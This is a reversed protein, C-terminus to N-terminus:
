NIFPSPITPRMKESTSADLRAIVIALEERDSSPLSNKSDSQIRRLLSIATFPDLNKPLAYAPPLTNYDTRNRTRRYFYAGGCATAIALLALWGLPINAKKYNRELGIVREVSALDEDEYRQYTVEEPDANSLDAFAFNDQKTGPDAQLSVTWLRETVPAVTDSEVDLEVVAIGDNDIQTVEFGDPKFDTVATLDPISDRICM